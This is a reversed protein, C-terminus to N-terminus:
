EERFCLRWSFVLLGLMVPIVLASYWAPFIKLAETSQTLYTRLHVPISISLYFILFGYALRHWLGPHVVRRWALWSAVGAYTLPLALLKDFTPTVLHQIVLDHGLFLVNLHIFIGTVMTAVAVPRLFYGRRAIAALPSTRGSALSTEM